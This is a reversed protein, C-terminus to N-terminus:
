GEGRIRPSPIVGRRRRALLTVSTVMAGLAIATPEPVASLFHGAYDSGFQEFHDEVRRLAPGSMGRSSHDKGDLFSLARGLTGSQTNFALDILVYDDFNVSGNLDFDGNLWGSLGSNFGNDTRVYDDFNVQGNFDTDGYYTYKVLTDTPAVAFTDFTGSNVATYEAGSLVGLTTNHQSNIKAAVSTIGSGDWSGGNRAAAIKSAVTAVPTSTAILDNEGLDLAAAGAVTLTAVRSTKNATDHGLNVAVTGANVNLDGIRVRDVSLQGGGIKTLNFNAPSLTAVNRALLVGSEVGITTHNALTLNGVANNGSISRVAGQSAM